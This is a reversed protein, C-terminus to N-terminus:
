RPENKAHFYDNIDYKTFSHGTTVESNIYIHTDSHDIIQYSKGVILGHKGSAVMICPAIATIMEGTKPIPPPESLNLLSSNLVALLEKQEEKM